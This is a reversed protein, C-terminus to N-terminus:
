GIKEVDDNSTDEIPSHPTRFELALFNVESTETQNQFTMNLEESVVGTQVEIGSPKYM